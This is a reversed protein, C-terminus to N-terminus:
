WRINEKDDDDVDVNEIADDSKKKRKANRNLEHQQM